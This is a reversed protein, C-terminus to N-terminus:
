CRTRSVSKTFNQLIQPIKLFFNGIRNVKQFYKKWGSGCMNETDPQYLVKSVTYKCDWLPLCISYLLLIRYKLTLSSFMVLNQFNEEVANLM